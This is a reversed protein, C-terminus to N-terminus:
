CGTEPVEEIQRLGLVRGDKTSILYVSLGVPQESRNPIKELDPDGPEDENAETLEVPWPSLLGLSFPDSQFVDALAQLEEVVALSGRLDLLHLL